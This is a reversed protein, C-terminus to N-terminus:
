TCSARLDNYIYLIFFNQFNLNKNKFTRTNPRFDKSNKAHNLVPYCKEIGWLNGNEGCSRNQYVTIITRPWQVLKFLTVKQAYSISGPWFAQLWRVIQWKEVPRNVFCSCARLWGAIQLWRASGIEMTPAVGHPQRFIRFFMRFVSDLM